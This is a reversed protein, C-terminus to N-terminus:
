GVKEVTWNRDLSGANGTAKIRLRMSGNATGIANQIANLLRKGGKIVSNRGDPLRVLFAYRTGREGHIVGVDSNTDFALEVSEGAALTVEPPIEGIKPM